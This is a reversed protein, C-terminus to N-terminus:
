RRPLGSHPSPLVSSGAPRRGMETCPEWARSGPSSQASAAGQWTAQDVGWEPHLEDPGLPMIKPSQGKRANEKMARKRQQLHHVPAAALYRELSGPIYWHGSPSPTGVQRVSVLPCLHPIDRWLQVGLAPPERVHVLDM